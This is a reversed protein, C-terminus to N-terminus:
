WGGPPYTSQTEHVRGNFCLPPDVDLILCFRYVTFPSRRRRWDCQRPFAGDMLKNLMRKGPCVVLPPTFLCGLLVGVVTGPYVGWCCEWWLPPTFVGTASVCCHLPLCGLLVGVVTAPYVVLYCEWLLPPTFVGAASVCCHRPLCGLLVRVVTAPYVGWYCEWLLPPTFVGATGGSCCEWLLPPTFVGAASGCCHRPLCEMLVGVVTAPYVGWCCEWLLPPTFVGDASVCCHRPLCGM